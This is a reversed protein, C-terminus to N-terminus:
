LLTIVALLTWAPWQAGRSEPCHVKGGQSHARGPLQDRLGEASNLFM